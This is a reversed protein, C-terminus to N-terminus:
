KERLRFRDILTSRQSILVDEIKQKEGRLFAGTFVAQRFSIAYDRLVLPDIGQPREEPPTLKLAREAADQAHRMVNEYRFARDSGDCIRNRVLQLYVQADNHAHQNSLNPPLPAEVDVNYIDPIRDVLESLMVLTTQYVGFDLLHLLDRAQADSQVRLQSDVAATGAAGQLPKAAKLAEAAHRWAYIAYVLGAAGTTLATVSIGFQTFLFAAVIGVLAVWWIPDAAIFNLREAVGAAFKPQFWRWFVGLFFIPIGGIVLALGLTSREGTKELLLEGGLLIVIFGVAGLLNRTAAGATEPLEDAMKVGLLRLFLM